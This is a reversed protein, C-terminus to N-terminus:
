AGLREGTRLFHNLESEWARMFAEFREQTFDRIFREGAESLATHTYSVEAESGGDRGRNLRIEIRCATLGPTIKVFEVRHSEPEYRSVVWIADTGEGSTTFVCDPEALGSHSYVRKPEWGVAWETERVPCLLPFVAEPPALLRQVFRRKARTPTVIEM